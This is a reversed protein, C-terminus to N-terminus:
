GNSESSLIYSSTDNTNIEINIVTGPFSNEMQGSFEEGEEFEWYGRDSVIQLRGDNQTIFERILKLGLGGPVGGKRTTNGEALAWVIANSSPMTKGLERKIKRRIGIGADALMFDLRGKKPFYQGTAFIGHRTDSHSAANEFLEHISEKFRRTLAKSMPPIGKGKWYTNLYVHFEKAGTPEFQQHPIITGNYDPKSPYGYAALFRNKCLISTLLSNSPLGVMKIKTGEAEMRVLLVRLAACMNADFWGCHSFDIEVEDVDSEKYDAYLSSIQEYGELSTRIEPLQFRCM